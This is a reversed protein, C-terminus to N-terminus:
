YPARKTANVMQQKRWLAKDAGRAFLSLLSSSSSAGALAAGSALAGGLSEWPGWVIASGNWQQEAHVLARTIGRAFVHLMSEADVVGVPANTVVGGLAEWDDVWQLTGDAARAQALRWM